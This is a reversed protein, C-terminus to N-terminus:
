SGRIRIRIKDQVRLIENEIHNIEGWSITEIRDKQVSRLTEIGTKVWAITQLIKEIEAIGM